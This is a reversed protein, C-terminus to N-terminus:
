TIKVESKLRPRTNFPESDCICVDDMANLDGLSSAVVFLMAIESQGNHVGCSIIEM